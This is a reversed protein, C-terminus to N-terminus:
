PTVPPLGNGYFVNKIAWLSGTHRGLVVVKMADRGFLSDNRKHQDIDDVVHLERFSISEKFEGQGHVPLDEFKVM